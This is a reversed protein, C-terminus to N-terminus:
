MVCSSILIRKEIENIFHQFSPSQNKEITMYKGINQAWEYKVKGKEIFTPCDQMFQKIGGKYIVDALKEWTGCISDQQYAQAIQLKASPYAARIADLDGLLWAEMEEIAICFVHDISIHNNKAVAKLESYFEKTDREDNDVIVFIAAENGLGALSRDFGKLYTALDNLLRGTKTEKVTNKKTFGGLGHFPKCKYIINKHKACFKSLVAEVLAAGSMDEILIQFYMVCDEGLINVIGCIM